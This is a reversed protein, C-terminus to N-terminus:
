NDNGDNSFEFSVISIIAAGYIFVGLTFGIKNLRRAMLSADIAEFMRGAAYESEVQPVTIIHQSDLLHSYKAIAVNIFVYSVRLSYM